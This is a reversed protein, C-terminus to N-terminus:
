AKKRRSTGDSGAKRRRPRQRDSSIGQAGDRKRSTRKTTNSIKIPVDNVEEAIGEEILIKADENPLDYEENPQAWVNLSGIWESYKFILKMFLFPSLKAM